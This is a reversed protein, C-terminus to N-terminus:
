GQLFQLVATNFSHPKALNMGHAAGDLIVRQAQPLHQQLRDLMAAYRPPSASGGMLLVPLTLGAVQEPTLVVAPEAAQGILTSVNDRAMYKFGEVMRAWTSPGNVADVFHALGAELDGNRVALSAADIYREAPTAEVTFRVGPDALVLAGVRGPHRLALQLAVTGGRSHGLVDVQPLDLEDLLLALDDAHRAPSFAGGRPDYTQPWYHRLSVAIIHRQRALAKIQPTWYRCDCLSGHVLLLPRGVGTQLYSLPYDDVVRTLLPLGPDFRM